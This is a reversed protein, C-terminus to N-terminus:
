LPTNMRFASLHLHYGITTSTYSLYQPLIFNYKGKKLVRVIPFLLECNLSAIKLNAQIGIEFNEVHKM